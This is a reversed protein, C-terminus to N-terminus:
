SVKFCVEIDVTTFCNAQLDLMDALLKKWDIETPPPVRIFILNYTPMM